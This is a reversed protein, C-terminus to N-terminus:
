GSPRHGNSAPCVHGGPDMPLGCLQCLPRGEGVAALAHLILSRVQDRRLFFRYGSDDEVEEEEDDAAGEQLVIVVIDRGEDYLLGITGIRWEPEVPEVLALAPDRQPAASKITDDEDIMLLMEQLKEVLIAVQQKELLFSHVGSSGQAQLYFTRAGPEGTFDATFVDPTVDFQM